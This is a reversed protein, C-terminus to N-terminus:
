DSTTPEIGPAPADAASNSGLKLTAVTPPIHRRESGLAEIVKAQLERLIRAATGLQRTGKPQSEARNREAIYVMENAALGIEGLYIAIDDKSSAGYRHIAARLFESRNGFGLDKLRLDLQASENETLRTAWSVNRNAYAGSSRTQRRRASPKRAM